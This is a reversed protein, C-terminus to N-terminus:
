ASECLEAAALLMAVVEEQTREPADNWDPIQRYSLHLINTMATRAQMNTRQDQGVSSSATAEILATIACHTEDPFYSGDDKWLGCRDILGAAARLHHAARNAM